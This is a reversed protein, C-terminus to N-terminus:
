DVSTYDYEDVSIMAGFAAAMAVHREHLVWGLSLATGYHEILIDIVVRVEAGLDRFAHTYAGLETWIADLQADLTLATGENPTWIWQHEPLGYGSDNGRATPDGRHRALTPRMGIRDTVEEPMIRKSVVALECHIEDRTKTMTM